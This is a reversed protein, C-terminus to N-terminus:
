TRPEGRTAIQGWRSTFLCFADGRARCKPHDMVVHRAGALELCRGIYGAAGRCLIADVNGGWDDLRGIVHTGSSEVITWRGSDHYRPWLETLKEVAFGPSFLRLFIRHITTLDREAAYRGIAESTAQDGTGHVEDIARQLRADLGIPYWGVAIISALTARDDESLRALVAEWGASGARALVFSRANVFGMGKTLAGEAQM